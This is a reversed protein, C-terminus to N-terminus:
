CLQWQQALEREGHLLWALAADVVAPSILFGHRYLGNIRLLGPEPCDILPLNDPLAPRAQVGIEIMRAEGFGPDVAYAASLLEMCSRVSAPSLDESEIETAGIVFVGQPKPAIYLPYRPHLLRTPRRLGVDPAHVRIVEGRVGRLPPLSPRAGLGRTDLVWDLGAQLARVSNPDQPSHWHLEVQCRILEDHLAELLARNDLQGERPLFIGQQFRGGLSPELARLAEGQLRQPLPLDPTTGTQDLAQWAQNLRQAFLPAQAADQRHWLILTGERQFFVPQSLGALLEPWRDLGYLGMSVVPPEATVSEALPALMAAAVWAASGDAQPGKADHMVVAHGQRALSWALLRGLLGAGLVAVRM